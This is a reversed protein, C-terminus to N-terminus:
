VQLLEPLLRIPGPPQGKGALLAEAARAGIATLDTGFLLTGSEYLWSESRSGIVVLEVDSGIRSGRRLMARTAGLAAREDLCVMARPGNTDALWSAVQADAAERDLAAASWVGDCGAKTVEENWAAEILRFYAGRRKGTLLGMRTHGRESLRRQASRIIAPVDHAVSVLDPDPCQGIIVLPAEVRKLETWLNGQDEFVRVVAGDCVGGAILEELRSPIDQPLDAVELVVRLQRSTFTRVLGSVVQESFPTFGEIDGRSTVYAIQGSQQRRLAQASANPRYAMSQAAQLIRERTEPRVRGRARGHLVDSVVAQSVGAERAIDRQTVRM